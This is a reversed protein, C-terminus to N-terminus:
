RSLSSTLVVVRNIRPMTLQTDRQYLEALPGVGSSHKALVQLDIQDPWWDKNTRPRSGKPTPADIAPNESESGHHDSM